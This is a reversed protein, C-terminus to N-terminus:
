KIRRFKTKSPIQWEEKAKILADLRKDVVAAITFNPHSVSSYSQFIKDM